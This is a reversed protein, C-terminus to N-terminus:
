KILVGVDFGESSRSRQDYSTDIMIYDSVELGFAELAGCDDSIGTIRM